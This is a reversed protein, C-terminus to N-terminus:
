VGTACSISRPVHGCKGGKPFLSTGRLPLPISIRLNCLDTSGETVAERSIPRSLKGELPLRNGLALLRDLDLYREAADGLAALRAELGNIEQATMLGLHRSEFRAEEM